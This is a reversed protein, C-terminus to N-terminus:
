VPRFLLLTFRLVAGGEIRNEAWIRGEFNKVLGTGQQAAIYQKEQV